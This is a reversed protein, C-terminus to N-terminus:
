LSVEMGKCLHGKALASRVSGPAVGLAKAASLQSPYRVGGVTVPTTKAHQKRNLERYSHLHNETCTVWQLNEVTNNKRNGDRHNVQLSHDGPLFAAAVLRHVLKVNNRGLQVGLYENSFRYPTLVRLTKSNRM